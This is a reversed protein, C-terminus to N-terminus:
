ILELTLTYGKKNDAAITECLIYTNGRKYNKIKLLKQPITLQYGTTDNKRTEQIHIKKYSEHSNTHMVLKDEVKELYVTDQGILEYLTRPFKIHYSM